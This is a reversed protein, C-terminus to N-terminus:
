NVPLCTKEYNFLSAKVKFVEGKIVSYPMDITVFLPQFVKLFFIFIFM